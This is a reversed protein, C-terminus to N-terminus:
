SERPHRPSTSFAGDEFDPIRDRATSTSSLPSRHESLFLRAVDVGGPFYGGTNGRLDLVYTSADRLKELAAKVDDVTSTSFQKIRIFGVQGGGVGHLVDELKVTARTILKILPEEEGARRVVLRLKSSCGWAGKSGGGRILWALCHRRSSSTM